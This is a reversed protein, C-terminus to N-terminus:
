WASRGTSWTSRTASAGLEVLPAPRPVAPVRGRGDRRLDPVRQPDLDAGPAGGLVFTTRGRVAVGPRHRGPCDVGGWGWWRGKALGWHHFRRGPLRRGAGLGPQRHRLVRAPAPSCSSSPSSRCPASPSSRGTLWRIMHRLARRWSCWWSCASTPVAGRGGPGTSASPVPQLRYAQDTNALHISWWNQVSFLPRSTPSRCRVGAVPAAGGRGGGRRPRRLGVGAPPRLSPGLLRPRRDIRHARARGDAAVHDPVRVPRLRLPSFAGPAPINRDAPDTAATLSTSCPSRSCWCAACGTRALPHLSGPRGHARSPPGHGHRPARWPDVRPGRHGPSGQRRGVAGSRDGGHLEGVPRGGGTM